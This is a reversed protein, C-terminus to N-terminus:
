KGFFPKFFEDSLEKPWGQADTPRLDNIDPQFDYSKERRQKDQVAALQNMLSDKVTGMQALMDSCAKNVGDTIQSANEGSQIDRSMVHDLFPQSMSNGANQSLQHAQQIAAFIEKPDIM